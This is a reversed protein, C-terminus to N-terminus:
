KNIKQQRSQEDLILRNLCISLWTCAYERKLIKKKEGFFFIRIRKGKESRFKLKVWWINKSKLMLQTRYWERSGIVDCGQLLLINGLYIYIYIYIIQNPKIICQMFMNYKNESYIFIFFQWKNHKYLVM